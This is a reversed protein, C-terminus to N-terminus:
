FKTPPRNRRKEGGDADNAYEAELEALKKQYERKEFFKLTLYALVVTVFTGPWIAWAFSAMVSLIFALTFGAVFVGGTIMYVEFSTSSLYVEDRPNFRPREIINSM